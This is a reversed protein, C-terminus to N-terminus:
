QMCLRMFTNLILLCQRKGLNTMMQWERCPDQKWFAICIRHQLNVKLSGPRSCAGKLLERREAWDFVLVRKQLLYFRSPFTPFSFSSGEAWYMWDWISTQANHALIKRRLALPPWQFSKILIAGFRLRCDQDLEHFDMNFTDCGWPNCSGLRQWREVRSLVELWMRRTVMPLRNGNKFHCYKWGDVM